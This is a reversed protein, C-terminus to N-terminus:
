PGRGSSRDLRTLASSSHNSSSRKASSRDKNEAWSALRSRVNAAKAQFLGLARIIAKPSTQGTNGNTLPISGTSTLRSFEQGNPLRHHPHHNDQEMDSMSDKRLLKSTSTTTGNHFRHHNDSHVGNSQSGGWNQKPAPTVNAYDGQDRRVGMRKSRPPPIPTSDSKGLLVHQGSSSGNMVHQQQQHEPEMKSRGVSASRCVRLPVYDNLRPHGNNAGMRDSSQAPHFPDGRINMELKIRNGEDSVHQSSSTSPPPLPQSSLDKEESFLQDTISEFSSPKRFTFCSFNQEYHPRSPARLSRHHKLNTTTTTPTSSTSSHQQPKEASSFSNQSLKETAKLGSLQSTEATGNLSRQTSDECKGPSRLEALLVKIEAMRDQVQSELKSQPLKSM